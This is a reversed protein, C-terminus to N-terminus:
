NLEIFDGAPVLVYRFPNDSEIMLPQLYGIVEEESSFLGGETNYIKENTELNMIIFGAIYHQKPSEQTM